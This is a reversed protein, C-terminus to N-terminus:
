WHYADVIQLLMRMRPHKGIIYCWSIKLLMCMIISACKKHKGIIHMLLNQTVHVTNYLGKQCIQPIGGYKPFVCAAKIYWCPSKPCKQLNILFAFVKDIFELITFQNLEISRLRTKRRKVNTWQIHCWVTYM